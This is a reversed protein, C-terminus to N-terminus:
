RCSNIPWEGSFVEVAAGTLTVDGTASWELELQGGPLSATVQRATRGALVGAVVAACAGSGCAETEGTGREWVRLRIQRETVVEVFEANVRRPFAPHREIAPGAGTVWEDSLKDVFTVCHPNGMSVCTVELGDATGPPTPIDLRLRANVPPDGPLSTPIAASELVPQGMNVRVQSQLGDSSLIEVAHSGRATEVTLQDRRAIDHDYLYKGVCRLGNGCMEAESGDANWMRMRADAAEAPVILILGDAGIGRHRDSVAVALEAPNEPATQRFCDVYIYDNGCGHMKTFHM